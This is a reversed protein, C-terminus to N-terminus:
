VTLLKDFVGGPQSQDIQFGPFALREGNGCVLQQTELGQHIGPHKEFFLAKEQKQRRPRRAEYDHGASRGEHESRNRVQFLVVRDRKLQEGGLLTFFLVEREKMLPYLTKNKIHGRASVQLIPGINQRAVKKDTKIMPLVTDSLKGPYALKIDHKLCEVVGGAEENEVKIEYRANEVVKGKLVEGGHVHFQYSEGSELAEDFVSSGYNEELYEKLGELPM